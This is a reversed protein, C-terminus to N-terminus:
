FELFLRTIGQSDHRVSTITFSEGDIILTDGQVIGPVDDSKVLAYPAQIELGAFGGDITAYDERYIVPIDEGAFEGPLALEGMTFFPTLDETIPLRPM